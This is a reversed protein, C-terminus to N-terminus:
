VGVPVSWTNGRCGTQCRIEKFTGGSGRTGGGGGGQPSTTQNGSGSQTPRPVCQRDINLFQGPPCQTEAGGGSQFGRLTDVPGIDPNSYAVNKIQGAVQGQQLEGTSPNKPLKSKILKSRFGAPPKPAVPRPHQKCCIAYTQPSNKFPNCAAACPIPAAPATAYAYYARRTQTALRAQTNIIHWLGLGLISAGFTLLFDEQKIVHKGM